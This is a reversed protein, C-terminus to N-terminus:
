QNFNSVIKCYNIFDESSLEQKMFNISKHVWQVNTKIYGNKYDVRDLSASGDNIQIDLGSIKCKFKQKTLLEILFEKTVDFSLKRRKSGWKINKMYLELTRITPRLEFKKSYCTRCQPCSSCQGNKFSQAEVEHFQGCDCKCKYYLRYTGCPLSKRCFGYVELKGNRLGIKDVNRNCSNCAQFNKSIISKSNCEVISDCLACKCLLIDYIARNDLTLSKIKSIIELFKLKYKKWEEESKVYKNAM